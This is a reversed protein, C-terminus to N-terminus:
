AAAGEARHSRRHAPDARRRRRVRRRGRVARGGGLAAVAGVARPEHRRVPGLGPRCGPHRHRARHPLPRRGARRRVRGGRPAPRAGAVAGGPDDADLVHVESTTKSGLGLLLWREDRSAAVGMWFREDDEQHVLVDEAPDGGVRHRWLQHPRWADDLRTYFVFRGDRSLEVGYGIGTISTDLVEGSEIDRVTLDFREDGATDVAFAVLRHDASVTLAGLSFFESDGAEVNGDVVVQEGPVSRAEPDPRVAHDALPSRVQAAYQRGEVTRAYYWWPGSAVPVSLDTEKVRSRIEEVITARLPALHETRAEAYANEAELHALLAPDELDRMWAYPDEVRHGHHERVHPRREPTPPAPSPM